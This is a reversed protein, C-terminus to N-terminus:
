EGKLKGVEANLHSLKSIAWLVADDYYDETGHIKRRAASEAMQIFKHRDAEDNSEGRGIHSFFSKLYTPMDDNSAFM